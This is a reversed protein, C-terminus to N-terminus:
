VQENRSLAVRNWAFRRMVQMLMFYMEGNNARDATALAACKLL